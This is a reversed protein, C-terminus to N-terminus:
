ANSGTSRPSPSQSAPTESPTAPDRAPESNGPGADPDEPGPPAETQATPDFNGDGMDHDSSQDRADHVKAHVEEVTQERMKMEAATDADITLVENGWTTLADSYQSLSDALKQFEEEVAQHAMETNVGMRHATPAGGFWEPGVKTVARKEDKLEDSNSQLLTVVQDIIRQEYNLATMAGKIVDIAAYM